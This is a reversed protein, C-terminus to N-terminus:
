KEHEYCACTGRIHIRIIHISITHGEAKLAESIWLANYPTSRNTVRTTKVIDFAKELAERDAKTLEDLLLGLGCKQALRSGIVMDLSKQISMRVEVSM